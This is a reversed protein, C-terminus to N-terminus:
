KVVEKFQGLKIYLLALMAALIFVIVSVASGYGYDGSVLYNYAYLSLSTSSGGPGGGTLIYILDFIRIADITRFLLAVVLVPRLMPLTIRFFRQIFNTGDIMAQKYLDNPITALGALLIITIFPTTKWVDSIVISAFAGFSSGLWSVPQNSLGLHIALYNLIGFDYNYILQWVRASVAVPIAWPILIAISLFGKGPLSENLLLAFILGFFLEFSVSVLVFLLTFGVSQWFHSDSLLRNYNALGIFKGPLFTVDRFFSTILTGVVPLFIFALMVIILPANFLYADRIESKIFGNKSKM